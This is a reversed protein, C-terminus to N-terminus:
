KESLVYFSGSEDFCYLMNNKGIIPFRSFPSMEVQWKVSLDPNLAALVGKDRSNSIDVILTGDAAINIPGDAFPKLQLTNLLSGDSTSFEQLMKSSNVNSLDLSSLTYLKGQQSLSIQSIGKEISTEWIKKGDPSLAYLNHGSSFYLTGDDGIVLNQGLFGSDEFIIQANGSPSIAYLRTKDTGYVSALVYITGNKAISLNTFGLQDPFNYQWKQKGDSNIAFLYNQSLAYITGDGGVALSDFLDEPIPFSWILNGDFDLKTVFRSSSQLVSEKYVADIELALIGDKVITPDYFHKPIQWKITGDSNFATLNYGGKNTILPIYVTANSDVVPSAAYGQDNDPITWKWKVELSSTQPGLFRSQHTCNNETPLITDLNYAGTQYGQGQSFQTTSSIQGIINDVISNPVVVEGGFVTIKSITAKKLFEQTVQPLNNNVLVIASSNLAAYAAGTLADAFGEGNAIFLQDQSDRYFRNLVAINRSYKNDGLIRENGNFKNAVNDSIIAQAGVVYAKSINHSSLYKQISDTIADKPVLIIPMQKQAAIPAISLADAYDDGTAVAVESVDGLQEAIKISTEYKDIGALRTVNYGTDTLQKEVGESVVGIGGVIYVTKVKLDALATSTYSNISDKGTLLIPANLKKALPAAALADPYNEGFALIANDSQTWGAEAIKFATEYRDTGALRNVTPSQASYVTNISFLM